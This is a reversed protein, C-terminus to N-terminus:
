DATKNEAFCIINLSAIFPESDMKGPYKKGKKLHAAMIPFALKM